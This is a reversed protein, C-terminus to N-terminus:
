RLVRPHNGPANMHGDPRSEEEAESSRNSMLSPMTASADSSTFGSDEEENPLNQFIEDNQQSM